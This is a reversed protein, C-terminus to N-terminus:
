SGWARPWGTARDSSRRRRRLALHWVLAATGAGVDFSVTDLKM